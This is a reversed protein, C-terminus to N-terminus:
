TRRTGHPRLRGARTVAISKGCVPCRSRHVQHDGPPDEEGPVERGSGECSDLAGRGNVTSAMATVEQDGIIEPDLTV